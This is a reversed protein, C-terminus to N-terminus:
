YLSWRFTALNIYLTPRGRTCIPAIDVVAAKCDSSLSLSSKLFISIAVGLTAVGAGPIHKDMSGGNRGWDRARVRM